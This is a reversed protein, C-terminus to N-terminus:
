CLPGEQCCKLSDQARNKVEVIFNIDKIKARTVLALQFYLKRGNVTQAISGSMVVERTSYEPPTIFVVMMLACGSLFELVLRVRNKADM